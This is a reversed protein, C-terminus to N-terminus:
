KRVKYVQIYNYLNNINFLSEKLLGLASNCKTCLIGRVEGTTHDHDVCLQKVKGKGTKAVEPKRCIACLGQQEELKKEYWDLPTNYTMAIVCYNCTRAKYEIHQKAEPNLGRYWYSYKGFADKDRKKLCKHCINTTYKRIWKNAYCSHCWYTRGGKASIEVCRASKYILKNCTPCAFPYNM